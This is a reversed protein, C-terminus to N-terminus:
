RCRCCRTRPCGRASGSLRRLVPRFAPGGRRGEEPLWTFRRLAVVLALGTWVALVLLDMSSIGLGTHAPDFANHLGNAVHELPFIKAIVQLWDPNKSEPILVGLSVLAAPHAPHHAPDISASRITPAVAYSFTSFAASGLITVLAVAPLAANPVVFDYVQAGVFLLIAASVLSM